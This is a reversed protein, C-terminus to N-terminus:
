HEPRELDQSLSEPLGYSYKKENAKRHVFVFEDFFKSGDLLGQRDNELSTRMVHRLQYLRQRALYMQVYVFLDKTRGGAYKGYEGFLENTQYNDCKAGYQIAFDSCVADYFSNLSKYDTKISLEPLDTVSVEYFVDPTELTWRRAYGKGFKTNIESETKTPRDPFFAIFNFEDSVITKYEARQAQVVCVAFLILVVLM